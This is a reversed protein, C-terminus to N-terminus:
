QMNLMFNTRFDRIDKLEVEGSLLKGLLDLEIYMHADLKDDTLEKQKLAIKARLERLEKNTSEFAEEDIEIGKAKAKIFEKYKENLSKYYNRPYAKYDPYMTPDFPTVTVGALGGYIQGPRKTGDFLSIWSRIFRPVARERIIKGAGEFGTTDPVSLSEGKIEGSEVMADRVLKKSKQSSTSNVLSEKVQNGIGGMGYVLMARNLNAYDEPVIEEVNKPMQQYVVSPDFPLHLPINGVFGEAGLMSLPISAPAGTIVSGRYTMPGGVFSKEKGYERGTARETIDGPLFQLTPDGYTSRLEAISTKLKLTEELAKDNSRALHALIFSRIPHNTLMHGHNQVQQAAFTIFDMTFTSFLSGTAGLAKPGTGYRMFDLYKPLDVYSVYTRLSEEYARAPRFNHKTELQYQYAIKQVMDPKSYMFRIVRWPVGIASAAKKLAAESKSFPIAEDFDVTNFEKLFENGERFGKMKLVETLNNLAEKSTPKDARNIKEIVKDKSMKEFMSYIMDYFKKLGKTLPAGQGTVEAFFSTDTAHEKIIRLLRKDKPIRGESIDILAKSVRVVHAPNAVFKGHFLGGFIQAHYINRLVSNNFVDLVLGAKTAQQVYGFAVGERSRQLAMQLAKQRGFYDAVQTNIYAGEMTSPFVMQDEIKVNTVEEYQKKLNDPLRSYEYKNLIKGKSRLYDQLKLQHLVDTLGVVTQMASHQYDAYMQMLEGDRFVRGFSQKMFFKEVISLERGLKAIQEKSTMSLAKNIAIAPNGGADQLFKKSEPFALLVNEALRNIQQQILVPNAEGSELKRITNELFSAVRNTEIFTSLYQSTVRMLDYPKVDFVRTEGPKTAPASGRKSQYSISAIDDETFTYVKEGSEQAFKQAQIQGKESNEFKKLINIEGMAKQRAVINQFGDSTNFMLRVTNQGTAIQIVLDQVAKRRPAVFDNAIVVVAKEFDDMAQISKKPTYKLDQVGTLVNEMTLASNVEFETLAKTLEYQDYATFQKTPDKSKERLDEITSRLRNMDPFINDVLVRGKSKSLLSEVNAKMTDLVQLKTKNTESFIMEEIDNLKRKLLNSTDATLELFSSIRYANGNKPNIVDADANRHIAHSIEHLEMRNVNLTEGSNFSAEANDFVRQVDAETVKVRENPDFKKAIQEVEFDRSSEFAKIRHYDEQGLIKSPKSVKDLVRALVNSQQGTSFHHLAAEDIINRIFGPINFAAYPRSLAEAAAYIVFRKQGTKRYQNILNIGEQGAVTRATARGLRQAITDQSVGYVKQPRGAGKSGEPAIFGRFMPNSAENISGYEGIFYDRSREVSIIADRNAKSDDIFRQLTAAPLDLGFFAEPSAGNISLEDAIALAELEDRVVRPSKRTEKAFVSIPGETPDISRVAESRAKVGELYKNQRVVAIAGATTQNAKNLYKAKTVNILYNWVRPDDIGEEILAAIMQRTGRTTTYNSIDYSDKSKLRDLTNKAFVTDRRLTEQDMEYLTDLLDLETKAEERLYQKREKRQMGALTEAREMGALSSEPQPITDSLDVKISGDEGITAELKGAFYDERTKMLKQIQLEQAELSEIFANDQEVKPKAMEKQKFRNIENLQRQYQGITDKTSVTTEGVIRESELVDAAEDAVDYIVNAPDAEQNIVDDLISKNLTKAKEFGEFLAEIFPIENIDYDFTRIGPAAKKGRAFSAADSADIGFRFTKLGGRATAAIGAALDVFVDIPYDELKKDAKKQLEKDEFEKGLLSAIGAFSLMTQYPLEGVAAGLNNFYASASDEFLPNKAMTEVTLLHPAYKHLRKRRKEADEGKINDGRWRPGLDGNAAMESLKKMETKQIHRLAVNSFLRRREQFGRAAAGFTEGSEDSTFFKEAPYRGLVKKVEARMKDDPIVSLFKDFEKEYYKKMGVDFVGKEFVYFSADNILDIQEQAIKRDPAYGLFLKAYEYGKNKGENQATRIEKITEDNAFGSMAYTNFIRKVEKEFQQPNLKAGRRSLDRQLITSIQSLLKEKDKAIESTALIIDSPQNVPVSLTNDDDTITKGRLSIEVVDKFFVDNVDPEGVSQLNDILYEPDQTGGKESLHWDIVNSGTANLLVFNEEPSLPAEGRLYYKENAFPAVVSSALVAFLGTTMNSLGGGVKYLNGVDFIGESQGSAIRSTDYMVSNTISEITSESSKKIKSDMISMAKLREEPSANSAGLEELILMKAYQQPTEFTDMAGGVSREELFAEEIEEPTRRSEAQRRADELTPSPQISSEFAAVTAKRISERREQALRLDQPRRGPVGGAEAVVDDVYSEILQLRTEESIEKDSISKILSDRRESNSFTVRNLYGINKASKWSGEAFARAQELTDFAIYNGTEFATVPDNDDYISTGDFRTVPFAIHLGNITDYGMADSLVNGDEDKEVPYMEPNLIRDVFPVDKNEELIQSQKETYLDVTESLLRNGFESAFDGVIGFDFSPTDVPQPAGLPEEEEPFYDIPEPSASVPDPTSLPEFVEEDEEEPFYDPVVDEVVDEDGFYDPVDKLVM